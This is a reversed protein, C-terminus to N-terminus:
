RTCWILAVDLSYGLMTAMGIAQSRSRNVVLWRVLVADDHTM